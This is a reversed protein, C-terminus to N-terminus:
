YAVIKYVSCVCVELYRERTDHERCRMALDASVRAGLGHELVFYPEHLNAIRPLVFVGHRFRFRM